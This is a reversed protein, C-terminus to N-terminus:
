FGRIKQELKETLDNDSAGFLISSKDVVMTVQEEQALDQLAEYIKGLIIQSQRNEFAALDAQARKRADEYELQKNELDKKMASISEPAQPAADTVPPTSGDVNPNTIPVPASMGKLTSDLVALRDKINGLENEKQALDQKMKDLKKRYDEKAAKTQPYVQFILEMDVFGIRINTSNNGGTSGGLPIELASAGFTYTM